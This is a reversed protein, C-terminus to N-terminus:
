TLPTRSLMAASKSPIVSHHAASDSTLFPQLSFRLLLAPFLEKIKPLKAGDVQNHFFSYIEFNPAIQPNPFLPVFVCALPYHDPTRYWQRSPPEFPDAPHRARLGPKM